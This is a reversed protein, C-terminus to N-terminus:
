TLDTKPHIHDARIEHFSVACRQAENRRPLSSEKILSSVVNAYPVKEMYVGDVDNKPSMADSIKFQSALQTSFQKTQKDFRFHKLIRRLYKKPTLCLKWLNKDKVIEMGLIMKAGGLDKMEFESKLRTKLKKIADLSQSAILMDYVEHEKGTVKFGEPHVMYIDDELDGHLFVYKVDM